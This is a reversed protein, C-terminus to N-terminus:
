SSGRARTACCSRSATPRDTLTWRGTRPGPRMAGLLAVVMDVSRPVVVAVVDEDRTGRARLARALARARADLEAYTLEDDERVM